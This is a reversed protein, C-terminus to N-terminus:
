GHGLVPHPVYKEELRRVEDDAAPGPPRRGSDIM